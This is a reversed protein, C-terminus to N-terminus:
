EAHLADQPDQAVVTGGRSAITVMGRCRRRRAASLVVGIVRPGRAFAASRFLADVSPRYGSEAPERSLRIHGDVVLLHHDPPAVAVTGPQLAAGSM